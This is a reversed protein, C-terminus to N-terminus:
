LREREDALNYIEIQLRDNTRKLDSSLNNDRTEIGHMNQLYPQVESVKMPTNYLTALITM